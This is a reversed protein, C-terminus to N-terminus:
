TGLKDAPGLAVANCIRAFMQSPRYRGEFMPVRSKGLEGISRMLDGTLKEDFIDHGGAWAAIEIAHDVFGYRLLIAIAKSVKIPNDFPPIPDSAALDRFYLADGAVLRGKMGGMREMGKVKFYNSRALDLLSFQHSRIIRDIDAFLPQNIYVPSFWVETEVVFVSALVETAGSLIKDEAGETDLKLADPDDIDIESLAHDLTNTEVEHRGVTHYQNGSVFRSVFAIDPTLLSTNGKSVAVNLHGAGSRDSIATSLYRVSRTQGLNSTSRGQGGPEFGVTLFPVNPDLKAWAPNIGGSSGIDILTVPRESPIIQSLVAGM